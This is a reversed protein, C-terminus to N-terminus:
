RAGCCPRNGLEDTYITALGNLLNQPAGPYDGVELGTRPGFRFVTVDGWAGNDYQEGKFHSRSARHLMRAISDKEGPALKVVDGLLNWCRVQDAAVNGGLTLADVWIPEYHRWGDLV